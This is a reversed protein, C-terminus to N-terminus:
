IYLDCLLKRSLHWVICDYLGNPIVPINVGCLFLNLGVTIDINLCFGKAVPTALVYLMGLTLIM